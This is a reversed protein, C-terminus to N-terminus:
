SLVPEAQAERPRMAFVIFWGIGLHLCLDGVSLAQGLPPPVGIVDAIPLLATDSTALQHKAGGHEVLDTITAGQGSDQLAQRTVPMGHNATIVLANLALGVLVLFFGPTRLNVVTFAILAAFSLLLLGLALDGSAPALQLVIGAIALWWMRLRLTPFDRLSGGAALGIAFAVIVTALILIV